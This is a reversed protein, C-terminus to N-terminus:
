KPFCIIMELNFPISTVVNNAAYKIENAIFHELRVSHPDIIRMM